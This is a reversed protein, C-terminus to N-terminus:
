ASSLSATPDSERCIFILEHQLCTSAGAQKGRPAKDGDIKMVERIEVAQAQPFTIVSNSIWPLISRFLIAKCLLCAPCGCASSLSNGSSSLREWPLALFGEGTPILLLADGVALVSALLKTGTEWFDDQQAGTLLQARQARQARRARAAGGKPVLAAGSPSLLLCLWLVLPSSKHLLFILSSQPEQM